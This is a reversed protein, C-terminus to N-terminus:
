IAPSAARHDSGAVRQRDANAAIDVALNVYDRPDAAVADHVNMSRYMAQTVRGRQLATPLTVVPTGVSFADLSTTMGNFHPTDLMVDCVSLLPLFRLDPQRPLFLIRDTLGPMTRQLRQQLLVSWRDCRGAFLVIKGASDRDLIDRM